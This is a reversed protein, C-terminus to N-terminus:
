LKQKKIMRKINELYQVAFDAFSPLEEGEALRLSYWQELLEAEIKSIENPKIDVPRYIDLETWLKNAESMTIELNPNM